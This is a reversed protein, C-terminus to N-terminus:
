TAAPAEPWSVHASVVRWGGERRVWTQSQRGNRDTGELQFETNVTAVDTGFTTVVTDVLRRPGSQRALSARFTSVAAFGHQTEAFGYRLTAPDDWFLEDLVDLDNALLAAEYREFVATVEDVIDRRNVQLPEAAGGPSPGIESEAASSM